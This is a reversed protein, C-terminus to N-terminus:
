MGGPPDGDWWAIRADAAASIQGDDGFVKLWLRPKAAIPAGISVQPPQFGSPLCATIQPRREATERALLVQLLAGVRAGTPDHDGCEELRWGDRTVTIIVYAVARMGEEAVLFHMQRSGAPALAALLRHRTISFDILEASRSLRIGAVGVPRLSALHVLDSREGCRAPLMPAGRRTSETVKLSVDHTTMATFRDSLSWYPETSSVLVADVGSAEEDDAVRSVLEAAHRGVGRQAERINGLGCCRITRGHLVVDLEFRDARALLQGAGDRLGVCRRHSRAWPVKAMARRYRQLAQDDLTSATDSRAPGVLSSDVTTLTHM